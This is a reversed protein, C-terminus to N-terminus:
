AEAVVQGGEAMFKAVEDAKGGAVKTNYEELTMTKAPPSKKGGKTDTDGAGGKQKTVALKPYMQKLANIAKAGDEESLPILDDGMKVCPEGAENTTLYGKTIGSELILDSAAGFHEPLKPAIAAKVREIKTAKEAELRATKESEMTAKFAALEKKLATVESNPVTDKSATETLKARMEQIIDPIPKTTDCGLNKAQLKFEQEGRKREVNERTLKTNTDTLKTISEKLPTVAATLDTEIEDLIAQGNPLKAVADKQEETLPM